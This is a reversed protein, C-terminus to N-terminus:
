MTAVFFWTNTSVEEEIAGPWAGKPDVGQCLGWCRTKYGYLIHIEADGDAWRNISGLYFQSKKALLIAIPLPIDKGSLNGELEPDKKATLSKLEGAAIIWSEAPTRKIMYYFFLQNARDRAIMSIVCCAIAVLVVM